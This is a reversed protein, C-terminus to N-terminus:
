SQKVMHSSWEIERTEDDNDEGEDSDGNFLTCNGSNFKYVVDNSNLM